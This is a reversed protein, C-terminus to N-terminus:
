RRDEARWGQGPSHGAVQGGRLTPTCGGKGADRWAANQVFSRVQEMTRIRDWPGEGGLAIRATESSRRARMRLFSLTPGVLVEEQV